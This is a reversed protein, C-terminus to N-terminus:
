GNGMLGDLMQEIMDLRVLGDVWEVPIGAEGWCAGALQGCVAGTTDADDGLNVAKLAATRFDQADHFAWLSAELSQVVNGSGVIQPPQSERFSGAAIEDIAPHLPGAARLQQLPEWTPSLVEDRLIGHM